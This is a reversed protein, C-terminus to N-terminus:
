SVVLAGDIRLISRDNSPLGCNMGLKVTTGFEDSPVALEITM